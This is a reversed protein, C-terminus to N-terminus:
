EPYLFREAKVVDSLHDVDIVMGMNFAKLKLGEKILERQFNRLRSIGENNCREMIHISEHSLGYLGASVYKVEETKNDDFSLISEDDNVKVFLPKEDDIYGSVGMLCSQRQKEKSFCKLFEIFKNKSFITDVTTIVFKDEPNMFRVLEYFTHFSSPTHGKRIRIEYNLDTQLSMLYEYVETMESNIFVSVSEAGTEKILNVLRGLMPIGGIKILPKPVLSGEARIREGDGGALIGFEIM